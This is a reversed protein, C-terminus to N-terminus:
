SSTRRLRSRRETVSAPPPRSAPAPSSTRSLRQNPTPTTSSTSGPRSPWNRNKAQEYLQRDAADSRPSRSLAAHARDRLLRDHVHAPQRGNDPGKFVRHEHWDPERIRLVYGASELAPVYAAEDSTDAVALVIDIRPKASLAPCQRPASMSSSRPRPDGLAARIREAEREFWRPWDPNYPALYITSNHLEAGGIRVAVLGEESRAKNAM